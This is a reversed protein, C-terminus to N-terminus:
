PLPPDDDDSNNGNSEDDNFVDNLDVRYYLQFPLVEEIYKQIFENLQVIKEKPVFIVDYPQLVVDGSMDAEYLVKKMNVKWGYPKAEPGRRIIVVETQRADRTFGGSAMIANLATMGVSLDKVGPGGVEGGVFVVQRAFERVSVSLDPEILESSYAQTLREDLQTPSLGVAEIDGILQLTIKGDPRVTAEENLEPNNFFAVSLGDGHQIIYDGAENLTTFYPKPSAAPRPINGTSTCATTVLTVAAAAAISRVAVSRVMRM